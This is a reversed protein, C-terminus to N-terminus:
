LTTFYHIRCVDCTFHLLTKISGRIEDYNNFLKKLDNENFVSDKIEYEMLLFDVIRLIDFYKLPENTIRNVLDIFKECYEPASIGINLNLKSPKFDPIQEKVLGIAM